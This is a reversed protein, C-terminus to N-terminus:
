IILLIVSFQMGTMIFFTCSINLVFILNESTIRLVEEADKDQTMYHEFVKGYTWGVANNTLVKM